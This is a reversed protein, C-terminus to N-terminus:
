PFHLKLLQCNARANNVSFTRTSDLGCGINSILNRATIISLSSHALGLFIMQYDWTDIQGIHALDFLYKYDLFIKQHM